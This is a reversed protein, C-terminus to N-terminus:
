ESPTAPAPPISDPNDMSWDAHDQVEYTRWTDDDTDEVGDGGVTGVEYTDADVRRYRMPQGNITSGALLADGAADSPLEGTQHYENQIVMSASIYPAEQIAVTAVTGIGVLTLIFALGFAALFLSGLGGIIVGAIAFGRPPKFLGFLSLLFGIPCLLGCTLWGILSTIFGALGLGNSSNQQVYVNTTGTSSEPTQSM